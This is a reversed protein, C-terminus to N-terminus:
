CVLRLLQWICAVVFENNKAVHLVRNNRAFHSLPMINGIKKGFELVIHRDDCNYATVMVCIDFRKQWFIDLKQWCSPCDNAINANKM